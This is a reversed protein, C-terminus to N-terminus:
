LYSITQDTPIHPLSSAHHFPHKTKLDELTAESYLAVGSSSLVRITATYHGNYIKRKCPKINQVGLDLDDDDVDSVAPSSGALTERLLQLSGGPMGWLRIASVIFEEQCQSKIAPKCQLNSRPRFTKLLCFPLVLLSVWCSVVDPKYIVKDLTDLLALTFGGHLDYVGM